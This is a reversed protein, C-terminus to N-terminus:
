QENQNIWDVIDKIVYSEVHQPKEYEKLGKSIDNGYVTQMLLHNLNPYLKFTANDHGKLMEKFLNFDKEVSVHFDAEGQMILIPKTLKKLFVEAPKEGWEKLYYAFVYKGIIPTRKAEEDSLNYINDFKKQMKKIQGKSILRTFFNAKELFDNQQDRMIDELNRASSAFIILGAYNGGEADIRPALLGGMSHGLIYIRNPDIRQDKRLLETAFIADEITEEKVSLSGGLGEVMEKGYTLTRKDYRITAIGYKAFGEALDKFTKTNGVSEDMDNAGSGHVLVIAPCQKVDASPLTLLGKLPFETGVTINEIIM